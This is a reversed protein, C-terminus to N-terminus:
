MYRMMLSCYVHSTSRRGLEELALTLGLFFFSLLFAMQLQDSVVHVRKKKDTCRALFFGLVNQKREEGRRKGKKEMKKREINLVNVWRCKRMLHKGSTGPSQLPIKFSTRTPLQVLIENSNESQDAKCQRVTLITDLTRWTSPMFFSSSYM